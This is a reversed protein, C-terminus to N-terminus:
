QTPSYWQMVVIFIFFIIILYALQNFIFHLLKTIIKMIKYNHNNLKHSLQDNMMLYYIFKLWILNNRKEEKLFDTRINAIMFLLFSSMIFFIRIQDFPILPIDFLNILKDSLIIPILIYSFFWSYFCILKTLAFKRKNKRGNVIDHIHVSIINHKVMYNFIGNFTKYLSINNVLNNIKSIIKSKIIVMIQLSKIM